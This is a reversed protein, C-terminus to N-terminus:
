KKLKPPKEKAMETLFSHVYKNLVRLLLAPEVELESAMESFVRNPWNLAQDRMNRAYRFIVLSAAKADILNGLKEQTEITALKAKEETLDTRAENYKSSSGSSSHGYSSNTRNTSSNLPSNLGEGVPATERVKSVDREANYRELNTYFDLKGSKDKILVGSKVLKRISNDSKLDVRRAFERISVLEKKMFTRVWILFHAGLHAGLSFGAQFHAGLVCM